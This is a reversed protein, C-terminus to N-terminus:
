GQSDSRSTARTTVMSSNRLPSGVQRRDSTLGAGADNKTSPTKGKPSVDVIYPSPALALDNTDAASATATAEPSDIPGNRGALTRGTRTSSQSVVRSSHASRSCRIQKPIPTATGSSM